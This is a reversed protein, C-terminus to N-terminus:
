QFNLKGIRRNFYRSRDPLIILFQVVTLLFPHPLPIGAKHLIFTAFQSGYLVIGLALM